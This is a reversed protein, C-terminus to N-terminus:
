SGMPRGGRQLDHSDFLPNSNQVFHVLQFVVVLLFPEASDASRVQQESDPEQVELEEEEVGPQLVVQVVGQQRDLEQEPV